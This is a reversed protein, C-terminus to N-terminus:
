KAEKWAKIAAKVEDILADLETKTMKSDYLAVALDAFCQATAQAAIKKKDDKILVCLNGVFVSIDKALQAYKAVEEAPLKSIMENFLDLLYEIVSEIGGTLYKLAVKVKSINM